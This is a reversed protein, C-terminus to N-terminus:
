PCCFFLAMNVPEIFTKIAQKKNKFKYIVEKNEVLVYKRKKGERKVLEWVVQWTDKEKSIDFGYYCLRTLTIRYIIKENM